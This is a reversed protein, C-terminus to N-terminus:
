IKTYNPFKDSKIRNLVTAVAVGLVKSAQTASEYITDDVKVKQTNVPKRGKLKERMKNKSEESHSKGYFCRRTDM